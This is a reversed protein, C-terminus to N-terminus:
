EQARTSIGPGFVRLNDEIAVVRFKRVIGERANRLKTYMGKLDRHGAKSVRCKPDGSICLLIRIHTVPYLRLVNVRQTPVFPFGGVMGVVSM